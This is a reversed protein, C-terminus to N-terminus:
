CGIGILFLGKRSTKKVLVCVCGNQEVDLSTALFPDFGGFPQNSKEMCGQAMNVNRYM